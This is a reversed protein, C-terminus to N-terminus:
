KPQTLRKSAVLFSLGRFRTFRRGLRASDRPEEARRVEFPLDMWEASFDDASSDVDIDDGDAFDWPWTREHVHKV